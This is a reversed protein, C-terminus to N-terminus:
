NEPGFEAGSPSSPGGEAQAQPDSFVIDEATGGLYDCQDQCISIISLDHLENGSLGGYLEICNDRCSGEIVVIGNDFAGAHSEQPAACTASIVLGLIVIIKKMIQKGM